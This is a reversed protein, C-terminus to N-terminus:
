EHSLARHIVQANYRMLEFFNNRGETGGIPDLSYLDLQLDEALTHAIGISIGPEAFLVRIRHSRIVKALYALHQPKPEHGGSPEVSTIIQLHYDRAFYQWGNHFTIMNRSPLDALLSKIERDLEELRSLYTKLNSEYEDRHAPDQEQLTSAINRAIIRAGSVSLWYHPDSHNLFQIGQDVTKLQISPLHDTIGAAWDDFGGGIMFLVRTDKLLRIQGPALGFTHPNAGARLLAISEIRDQGINQAIDALPFITARVKLKQPTSPFAFSSVGSIFFLTLFFFIRFGLRTM